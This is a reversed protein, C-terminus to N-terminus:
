WRRRRRRTSIYGGYGYGGRWGMLGQIFLLIILGIIPYRMSLTVISFITTAVIVWGIGEPTTGVGPPVTLIYLVVVAMWILSFIETKSLPRNNWAKRYARFFAGM